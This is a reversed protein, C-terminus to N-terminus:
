PQRCLLARPLRAVPAPSRCLRNHHGGHGLRSGREGDSRESCGGSGPSRGAEIGGLALGDQVTGAGGPGGTRQQHDGARARALGVGQRMADRAQDGVAGVGPADQQEGKRTTGGLLHPPAHSADQGLGRRGSGRRRAQFQRPGAGEVADARPQQAVVGPADAEIRTEGDVVALIRGVQQVQHAV